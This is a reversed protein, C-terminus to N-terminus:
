GAAAEKDRREQGRMKAVAYAVGILGEGLFATGMAIVMGAGGFRPILLFSLGVVIVLKLIGLRALFATHGTM